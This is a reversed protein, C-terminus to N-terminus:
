SLRQELKNRLGNLMKGIRAVDALLLQLKDSTIYGLKESIIFHTELEAASGYSINIFRLFDKTSSRVQGEAINASISVAARRIQSTLSYIEEKPFTKNVAYVAVVLDISKQWVELDKYSTLAM